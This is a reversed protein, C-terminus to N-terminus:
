VMLPGILVGMLHVRRTGLRPPVLGVIAAVVFVGVGFLGTFLYSLGVLFVLVAASVRTYAMRGVTRLYRDGVSVVLLFGAAAGIM